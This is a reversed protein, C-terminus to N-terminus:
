RYGAERQHRISAVYVVGRTENFDYLAVFGTKGFPIILERFRQEVPRGIEPRTKLEDLFSRIYTVVRAALGLDEKAYFEFIRLLNSEARPSLAVRVV